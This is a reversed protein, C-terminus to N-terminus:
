QKSGDRPEVAEASTIVAAVLSSRRKPREWIIRWFTAAVHVEVSLPEGRRDWSVLYVKGGYSVRTSAM